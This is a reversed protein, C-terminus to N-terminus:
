LGTSEPRPPKSAVVSFFPRLRPFLRFIPRTWSPGKAGRMVVTDVSYGIRTLFESVESRTYERVHGMHGITRLKTYQEYLDPSCSASKDKLILNAYGYLSRLNPTSLFLQGGPKTVRLLEAMTYILDIRLHEFLENCVVADFRAEAFPLPSHEIDVAHVDLATVEIVREFRSPDIDVGCVRYGRSALAALLVPPSCGVDLVYSGAVLHTEVLDLDQAFRDRHNTLYESAWDSLPAQSERIVAIQADVSSLASRSPRFPEPLLHTRNKNVQHGENSQVSM